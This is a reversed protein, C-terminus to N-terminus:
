LILSCFHLMMGLNKQFVVAFLSGRKVAMTPTEPTNEGCPFTFRACESSGAEELDGMQGRQKPNLLCLHSFCQHALAILVILIMLITTKM